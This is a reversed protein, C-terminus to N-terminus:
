KLFTELRLLLNVNNRLTIKWQYRNKCDNTCIIQYGTSVICIIIIHFHIKKRKNKLFVVKKAYKNFNKREIHKNMNEFIKVYM